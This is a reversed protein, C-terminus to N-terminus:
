RRVDALQKHMEAAAKAQKAEKAEDRSLNALHDHRVAALAM